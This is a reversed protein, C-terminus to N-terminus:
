SSSIRSWGSRARPRRAAPGPAGSDAVYPTTTTWYLNETDATRGYVLYEEAGVVPTWSITVHGNSGDPLTASVEPSPVSTANNGQSAMRRAVVKYYYTGPSLSGSGSGATASAAAPTAIIPDRWALPKSLLNRRFTVNTTVLDPITPDAGGFLVNEGAGELYNNEIWYNGPGNYGSIAQSDQGIAKCDSIYSNIVWTDRSHLALGRKQGVNPDGHIYVRDLVFAYPVQSLQTQSSDGAGIAVVDGYGNPNAQFELFMLKWHNAAAATRLVSVSNSSKLKPLLSAYAPTLRVGAPPLLGDPAASRM